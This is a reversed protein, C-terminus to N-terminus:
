RQQMGEEGEGLTRPKLMSVLGAATTSDNVPKLMSVLGAAALKSYIIQKDQLVKCTMQLLLYERCTAKRCAIYIFFFQKQCKTHIAAALLQFYSLSMPEATQKGM